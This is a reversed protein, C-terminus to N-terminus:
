VEGLGGGGSGGGGRGGRGIPTYLPDESKSRSIDKSKMGECAVYLIEDVWLPHSVRYSPGTTLPEQDHLHM